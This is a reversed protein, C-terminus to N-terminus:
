DIVIIGIIVFLTQFSQTYMVHTHIFAQLRYSAYHGITQM